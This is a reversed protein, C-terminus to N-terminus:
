QERIMLKDNEDLEYVFNNMYIKSVIGRKRNAVLQAKVDFGGISSILEDTVFGLHYSGHPDKKVQAKINKFEAAGMNAHLNNNLVILLDALRGFDEVKLGPRDANGIDEFKVGLRTNM